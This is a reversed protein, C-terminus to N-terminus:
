RAPQAEPFTWRDSLLEARPRYLRVTYNVTQNDVSAVERRHNFKGLVGGSDEALSGLMRDTEARVFNDVGVRVGTM